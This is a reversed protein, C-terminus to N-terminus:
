SRRLDHPRLLCTRREQGNGVALLESCSEVTTGDLPECRYALRGLIELCQRHMQKGHTSLFLTPRKRSLVGCAGRLTDVEGGEVDIKIYDPAPVSGEALLGDLSVADVTIKGQASLRGTTSNHGQLFAAKGPRDCVAARIVTANRVDNLALHRELYDLNRPLPEFAFVHGAGGVLVSGLLTYFGVHAGIDFFVSGPRVTGCVVRQMGREYIGIWCGHHSSGVIWRKGKLKGRVIRVKMHKPLM